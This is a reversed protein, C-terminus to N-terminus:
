WKRIPSSITTERDPQAEKISITQITFGYKIKMHNNNSACMYMDVGLSLGEVNMNTYSSGLCGNFPVSSMMPFAYLYPFM